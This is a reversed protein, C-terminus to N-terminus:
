DGNNWKFTVIKIFKFSSPPTSIGGYLAKLNHNNRNSTHACIYIEPWDTSGNGNSDIVNSIFMAHGGGSTDYVYDGTIVNSVQTDIGQVGYSNNAHNNTVYSYFYSTGAWDNTASSVNGWWYADMPLDKNASSRGGLGYWICQSVFNQCDDPNYHNFLLNNYSSYSTTSGTDDSYELAYSAAAQRLSSTYDVYYDGPVSNPTILNVNVNNITKNSNSQKFNDYDNKANIALKNFDTGVGFAQKFENTYVDDYILWKGKEKILSIKHYDQEKDVDQMFNYKIKYNLNIDAIAHDNDLKLDSYVVKYSYNEIVTNDADHSAILFKAKGTEYNLVQRGSDLNAEVVNKLQDVENPKNDKVSKFQLGFYTNLTNDILAKDNEVTSSTTGILLGAQENNTTAFAITTSAFILALSLVISLTKKM